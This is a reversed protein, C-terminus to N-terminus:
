RARPQDQEQSIKSKSEEKQERARRNVVGEAALCEPCPVKKSGLSAAARVIGGAFFVPDVVFSWVAGLVPHRRLEAGKVQPCM